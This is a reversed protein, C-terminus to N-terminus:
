LKVFTDKNNILLLSNTVWSINPEFPPTYNDLFYAMLEFFREQPMISVGDLPITLEKFSAMAKVLFEHRKEKDLQFTEMCTILFDFTINSYKNHEIDSIYSQSKGVKNALENESLGKEIRLLKFHKGFGSLKKM